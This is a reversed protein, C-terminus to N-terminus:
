PCQGFFLAPSPHEPAVFLHFLCSGPKELHSGKCVPEEGGERRGRQVLVQTGKAMPSAAAGM